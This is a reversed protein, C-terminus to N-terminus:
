RVVSIQAPSSAVIEPVGRYSSVVGRVCITRGRYRTEPAGFKARNQIWIVVQFRRPDPYPVGLNLFRPSGNSAFAYKTSAVRGRITALRGVVQRANQWPVAGACSISRTGSLPEGRPAASAHGTAIAVAVVAATAVKGVLCHERAPTHM